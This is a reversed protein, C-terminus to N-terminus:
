VPITNGVTGLCAPRTRVSFVGALSSAMVVATYRSGHSRESSTARRSPSDWYLIRSISIVFVRMWVVVWPICIQKMTVSFTVVDACQSHARKCLVRHVHSAWRTITHECDVVTLWRQALSLWASDLFTPILVVESETNPAPFALSVTM